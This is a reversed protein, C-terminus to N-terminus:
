QLYEDKYCCEEGDFLIKRVDYSGERVHYDAVMNLRVPNESFQRCSCELAAEITVIGDEVTIYECGSICVAPDIDPCTYDNFQIRMATIDGSVVANRPLSCDLYCCVARDTSQEWADVLLQRRHLITKNQFDDGSAFISMSLTGLVLITIFILCTRKMDIVEDTYDLGSFSIPLYM